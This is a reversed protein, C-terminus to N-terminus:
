NTKNKVGLMTYLPTRRFVSDGLSFIFSGTLVSYAPHYFFPWDLLSSNTMDLGVYTLGGVIGGIAPAPHKAVYNILGKLSIYALDLIAYLVDGAANAGINAADQIIVATNIPRNGKKDKSPVTVPPTPQQVAVPNTGDDKATTQM